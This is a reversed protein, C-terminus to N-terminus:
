ADPRRTAGFGRSLCHAREAAYELASVSDPEIRNALDRFDALDPCLLVSRVIWGIDGTRQDLENGM